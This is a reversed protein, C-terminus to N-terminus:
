NGHVSLLGNLRSDFAFASLSSAPWFAVHRLLFIAVSWSSILPSPMMSVSGSMTSKGVGSSLSFSRCSCRAMNSAWVSVWSLMMSSSWRMDDRSSSRSRRFLASAVGIGETLSDVDDFDGVLRISSPCCKTVSAKTTVAHHMKAKPPAGDETEIAFPHDILVGKSSSSTSKKPVDEDEWDDDEARHNPGCCFTLVEMTSWTCGRAGRVHPGPARHSGRLASPNSLALVRAAHPNGSKM